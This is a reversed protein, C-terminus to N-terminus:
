ESLCPFSFTWPLVEVGVKQPIRWALKWQQGGMVDRQTSKAARGRYSLMLFISCVNFLQGCSVSVFPVFGSLDQCPCLMVVFNMDSGFLASEESLSLLFAFPRVEDGGERDERLFEAVRREINEWRVGSQVTVARGHHFLREFVSRCHAKCPLLLM